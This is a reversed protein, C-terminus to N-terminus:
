RAGIRTFGLNVARGRLLAEVKKGAVRIRAAIVADVMRQYGPIKVDFNTARIHQRNGTVVVSATGSVSELRTRSVWSKMKAGTARALAAWGAMHWGVRSQVKKQYDRLEKESVIQSIQSGSVRGRSNRRRTHFSANLGGGVRTAGTIEPMMPGSFTRNHTYGAVAVGNRTYPRVTTSITGKVPRTLLNQVTAEDGMKVARTLAAQYQEKGDFAMRKVKAMIIPLSTFVKGVDGAVAKRGEAYTAPPTLRMVNQAIFRGEEKLVLGADVKALRALEFLKDDLARTDFTVEMKM